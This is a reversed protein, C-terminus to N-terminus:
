GTGAVIDFNSRIVKLIADMIDPALSVNIEKSRGYRGKSVTRARIFGYMDLESLLDTFARQTLAPMGVNECFQEYVMYADGTHLCKNRPKGILAAYLTAQLHKPSTRIMAVYKDREIEENARDVIDLTVPKDLREALYVSRTLLDVAKRADGHQRSAYAAIKQVVGEKIMRKRLARKVRLDLITQLDNANYPNFMIDRVKLASKVRPDLNDMWALRNSTFILILKAKIRQPLRKVLFKYFNDSDTRVNDAEDVFIVLYGKVSTLAMEIRAMLEELSIGKKYHRSAQLLCALNNLARFCPTQCCLDLHLRM